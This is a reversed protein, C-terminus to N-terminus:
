APHAISTSAAELHKGRRNFVFAYFCRRHLPRDPPEDVFLGQDDAAIANGCHVCSTGVPTHARPTNRLVPWQWSTGFWSKIKQAM